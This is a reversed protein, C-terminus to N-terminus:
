ARERAREQGEGNRVFCHPRVPMLDKNRFYKNDFFKDNAVGILNNNNKPVMHIRIQIEFDHLTAVVTKVM